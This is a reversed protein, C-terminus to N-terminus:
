SIELFDIFNSQLWEVAQNGQVNLRSGISSFNKELMSKIKQIREM